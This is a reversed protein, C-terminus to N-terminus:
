FDETIEVAGKQTFTIKLNPIMSQSLVSANEGLNLTSIKEDTRLNWIIAKKSSITIAISEGDIIIAKSIVEAHNLPHKENSSPSSVIFVKSQEIPIFEQTANVIQCTFALFAFTAIHLKNM